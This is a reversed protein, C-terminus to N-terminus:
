FSYVLNTFVVNAGSTGNGRYNTKMYNYEIGIYFPKVPYFKFNAFVNQNRNIGLLMNAATPNQWTVKSRQLNSIGYGVVTEFKDHWKSYAQGWVELARISRTIGAYTLFDGLDKGYQVEGSVQFYKHFPIQLSGAVGWMKTNKNNGNRHAGATTSAAVIMDGAKMKRTYQLSGEGYPISSNNGSNIITDLNSPNYGGLSLKIANADDIPFNYSFVVGPRRFGLDGQFWLNGGLSLSRTNLPSFIDWDQGALMRFNKYDYTLYFLRIRPRPSAGGTPNLFDIELKGGLTTNKGVKSGTWNLGLRSNQPTVGIWANDDPVLTRDVVSSQAVFSDKQGDTYTYLNTQASGWFVQAAIMGYIELPYKTKIAKEPPKEAQAAQEAKLDTLEQELKDIRSNIDEKKDKAIAGVSSLTIALLVVLALVKRM